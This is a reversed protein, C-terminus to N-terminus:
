RLAGRALLLLAWFLICPFRAFAVPQGVEDRPRCGGGHCDAPEHGDCRRPGRYLAPQQPPTRTIASRYVSRVDTRMRQRDTSRFVATIRLGLVRAQLGSSEYCFYVVRRKGCVVSVTLESDLLWAGYGTSAIHSLSRVFRHSTTTRSSMRRSGFIM